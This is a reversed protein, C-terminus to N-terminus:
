PPYSPFVFSAWSRGCDRTTLVTDGPFVVHGVSPTEFGIAEPSTSTYSDPQPVATTWTVGGDLSTQVGGESGVVVVAPSAPLAIGDIGSSHDVGPLQPVSHVPGFTTGENTSTVVDQQYGASQPGIQDSICIAAVSGGTAAIQKIRGPQGSPPFAPDHTPLVSCPNALHAWLTGGDTSRWLGTTTGLLYIASRRVLVVQSFGDVPANLTRWFSSGAASEEVTDACQNTWGCLSVVRVAIGDSIELLRVPPAPQQQWTSGGDTTVFFEGGFAYGTSTSAFRVGWLCVECGQSSAEAPPGSMEQWSRGGDSTRALVLCGTVDPTPTTLGLAWGDSVTAFTWSLVHFGTLTSPPQSCPASATTSPTPTTTTSASSPIKHGAAAPAATPPNVSNGGTAVSVVGGAVALLGLAAVAVWSTARGAVRM